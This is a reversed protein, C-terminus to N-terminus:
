RRRYSRGEMIRWKLAVGTALAAGSTRSAADETKQADALHQPFPHLPSRPYGPGVRKTITNLNISIKTIIALLPMISCASCSSPAIGFQVPRQGPHEAIRREARMLNLDYLPNEASM